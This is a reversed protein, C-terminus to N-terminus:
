PKPRMTLWHIVTKGYHSESNRYEDKVTTFNTMRETMESLKTVGSNKGDVMKFHLVGSPKLCRYFERNVSDLFAFWDARSKWFGWRRFFDQNLRGSKMRQRIRTIPPLPNKRFIHPPDCYIEDFFHDPFKLDTASMVFDPRCEPRVDIRISAHKPWVKGYSCTADLIM